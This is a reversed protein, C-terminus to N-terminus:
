RAGPRWLWSVKAFISRTRWEGLPLDFQDSYGVYAATGPHLEFAVLGSTDLTRDYSNWEEIFRVSLPRSINLNAKVRTIFTDYVVPGNYAARFDDVVVSGGLTLRQWLAVSAGIEGAYGFGLFLDADSAASYHPVPGVDWGLSIMTTSTPDVASFGNFTWRDFDHGLFRERIYFAETEVYSNAGIFASAVPGVYADVPRGALDLAVMGEAGPSIMRFAGVDHAHFSGQLESGVRGVERLFGNEARFESSVAHTTWESSFAEGSQEIGLRAAPGSLTSGDLLDTTSWAAQARAVFRDAFPVEADVAGLHHGLWQGGATLLEKDSALAGVGSGEGLDIRIRAVHDLARAGSVVSEDWGPLARGSAYDVSITDAAPTEDWGGVFGIGVPGARGTLKYGALPDVVSRSYTLSMPTEFVDAGELFFPRKENYDLPYKLNATVKDADAEIQSFDPNVTLDATLSSTLGLKAGLGPDLGPLFPIGDLRGVLTPQLEVNLGAPPPADVAIRAAQGLTSSADQSLAPWTFVGWPNPRFHELIIGWVQASARPYRLSRWPIAMEATYGQPNPLGGSEWVEDWALDHDWFDEGEVYVGDAQVGRASVRFAFARQGDQYTDLLVAVWDQFLTDDRPVIPARLAADTVVTFAVYFARDDTLLRVETNADPTTGASPMFSTFGKIVTANAWDAEDLRGDAHIPATAHAVHVPDLPM